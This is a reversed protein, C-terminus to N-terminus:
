DDLDRNQNAKNQKYTSKYDSNLVKPYTIKTTGVNYVCYSYPMNFSYGAKEMEAKEEATMEPMVHGRIEVGGDVLFLGDVELVMKAEYGSSDAGFEIYVEPGVYKYHDGDMKYNKSSFLNARSDSVITSNRNTIYNEFQVIWSDPVAQVKFDKGNPDQAYYFYDDGDKELYMASSGASGITTDSYYSYYYFGNETVKYETIMQMSAGGAGLSVKNIQSFNKLVPDDPDQAALAALAQEAEVSMKGSIISLNEFFCGCFTTLSLVLVLAILLITVLNKKM